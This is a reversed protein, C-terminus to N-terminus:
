HVTNSCRLFILRPDVSTDMMLGALENAHSYHEEALEPADGDDLIKAVALSSEMQEYLVGAYDRM